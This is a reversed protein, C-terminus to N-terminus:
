DKSKIPIVFGHGDREMMMAHFACRLTFREKILGGGHVQAEYVDATRINFVFKHTVPKGCLQGKREGSHMITQCHYMGKSDKNKAAMRKRIAKCVDKPSPQDM